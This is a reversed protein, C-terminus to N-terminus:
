SVWNIVSLAVITLVTLGLAAAVGLCLYGQIGDVDKV